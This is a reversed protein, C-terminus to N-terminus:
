FPHLRTFNEITKHTPKSITPSITEPQGKESFHCHLSLTGNAEATPSRVILLKNNLAVLFLVIYYMAFCYLSAIYHVCHLVFLDPFLFSFFAHPPVGPMLKLNLSPSCVIHHQLIIWKLEILHFSPHCVITILLNIAFLWKYFQVEKGMIRPLACQMLRPDKYKATCRLRLMSWPQPGHLCM